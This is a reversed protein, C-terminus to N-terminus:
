ETVRDNAYFSRPAEAEAMAADYEAQVVPIRETLAAFEAQAAAKIAPWEPSFGYELFRGRVTSVTADPQWRKLVDLHDSALPYVNEFNTILKLKHHRDTMTRLGDGIETEVRTRSHNVLDCIYKPALKRLQEVGDSQQECRKQSLRADREFASLKAQLEIIKQTLKPGETELIAAATEAEKMAAARDAPTGAISQWNSISKMRSLEHRVTDSDWGMERLFYALESAFPKRDAASIERLLQETEEFRCEYDSQIENSLFAETTM